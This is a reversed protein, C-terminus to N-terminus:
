SRSQRCMGSPGPTQDMMCSDFAVVSFGANSTGLYAKMTFGTV